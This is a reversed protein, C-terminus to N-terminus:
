VLRHPFELNTGAAKFQEEIKQAAVGKPHIVLKKQNSSITKVYEQVTKLDMLAYRQLLPLLLESDYPADYTEDTWIFCPYGVKELRKYTLNLLNVLEFENLNDVFISLTIMKIKSM